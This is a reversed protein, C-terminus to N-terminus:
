LVGNLETSLMRRLWKDVINKNDKSTKLDSFETGLIAYRGGFVRDCIVGIKLRKEEKADTLDLVDECAVRDVGVSFILPNHSEKTSNGKLSVYDSSQEFDDRAIFHYKDISDQLGLQNFRGLISIHHQTQLEDLFIKPMNEILPTAIIINPINMLANAIQLSLSNDLLIDTGLILTDRGSLNRQNLSQLFPNMLSVDKIMDKYFKVEDGRTSDTFYLTRSRNKEFVEVVFSEASSLNYESKAHVSFQHIGAKNFAVILKGNNWSVFDRMEKPYITLNEIDLSRNDGDVASISFTKTENFNLYKIQGVKWSWRDIVPAKREKVLIKLKITDKNCHKQSKNTALVCSEVKFM